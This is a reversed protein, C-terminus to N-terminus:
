GWRQSHCVQIGSASANEAWIWCHSSGGGWHDLLASAQPHLALSAPAWASVTAERLSILCVFPVSTPGPTLGLLGPFCVDARRAWLLDLTRGRGPSEPAVLPQRM